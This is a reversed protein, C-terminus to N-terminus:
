KIVKVFVLISLVVGVFAYLGVLSGLIAFIWGILPLATLTLYSIFPFLVIRSCSSFFSIVPSINLKEFAKTDSTSTIHSVGTVM